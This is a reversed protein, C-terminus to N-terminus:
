QPVPCIAWLKLRGRDNEYLRPACTNPIKPDMCCEDLTATPLTPIRSDWVIAFAIALFIIIGILASRM